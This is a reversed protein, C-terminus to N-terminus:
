YCEFLTNRVNRAFRGERESDEYGIVGIMRILADTSQQSNRYDGVTISPTSVVTAMLTHSIWSYVLM